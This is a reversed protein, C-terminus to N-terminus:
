VGFEKLLFDFEQQMTKFLMECQPINTEISEEIQLAYNALITFGIGKAMGKITHANFKMQPVNKQTIALQLDTFYTPLGSLAMSLLSEVIQQDNNYKKLIDLKDFHLINEVTSEPKSEQTDTKGYLYKDFAAFLLQPRLPKPLYDDMGAEQCREKEGSVTGASLAIIPIRKTQDQSTARIQRAAEYGNMIPMQIDMLVIDPKHKLYFECAKQGQKTEIIEAKPMNISILSSALKLNMENDDVILVTFTGEAKQKTLEVIEQEQIQKDEPLQPNIKMFSQFLQSMRIPKVLVYKVDLLKCEASITDYDSSSHLFIVPQKASTKNQRISHIVQLGDMYPMHYDVIVVDYNNNKQIMELATIGNAAQDSEINKSQLMSEVITRNHANDDIILVKKIWSIDYLDASNGQECPVTLTFYFCSGVGEKSQLQINSGMKMILNSSIALGLGTGGYKRTTSNDAQTFSEFIAQQKSDPIGIGTDRISFTINMVGAKAEIPSAEIQLEIEGQETFKSANGLLNVLVQRL